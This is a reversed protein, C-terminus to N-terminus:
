NDDTIACVSVNKSRSGHMLMAKAAAVNDKNVFPTHVEIVDPLKIGRGCPLGISRISAAAIAANVRYWRDLARDISGPLQCDM